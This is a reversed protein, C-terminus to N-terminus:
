KHAPSNFTQLTSKTGHNGEHNHVCQSRQKQNVADSPMEVETESSFSLMEGKGKRM